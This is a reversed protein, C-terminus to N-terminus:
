QFSEREFRARDAPLLRVTVDTAAEGEARATV